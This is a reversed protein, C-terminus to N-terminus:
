DTIGTTCGPILPNFPFLVEDYRRPCYCVYFDRILRNDLPNFKIVVRLISDQHESLIQQLCSCISSTAGGEPIMGISVQATANGHM